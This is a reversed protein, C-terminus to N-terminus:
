TIIYLAKLKLLDTMREVTHVRKSGGKGISIKIRGDSSWVNRHGHQDAAANLIKLREKTLDKCITIGSGKLKRKGNFIMKRTWYSCLHVVIPSQKGKNLHNVGELEILATSM